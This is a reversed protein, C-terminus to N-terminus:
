NSTAGSQGVRIALTQSGCWRAGPPLTAPQNILGAEICVFRLYDDPALDSMAATKARWPNWVVVDEFGTQTIELPGQPAHLVVPTSLAAYIRDIERDITLRDTAAASAAATVMRGQDVSDRYNQRALGGISCRRIEARLYTHLAACFEFPQDGTNQVALSLRLREDTLNITLTLLFHGAFQASAPGDRLTLCMQGSGDDARGAHDLTWRSIRAFGHKPLAGFEAFQPFIVPVGGRLASSDDWCTQASMFLRESGDAGRWSCVQGGFLSVRIQAGDSSALTLLDPPLSSDDTITM